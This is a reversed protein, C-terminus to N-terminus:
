DNSLLLHTEYYEQITNEIFDLFQQTRVQQFDTLTTNSLKTLLAQEIEQLIKLAEKSTKSALRNLQVSFQTNKDVIYDNVSVPM